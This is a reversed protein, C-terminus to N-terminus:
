PALCNVRIERDGVEKAASKTLGIIAHKSAVYAANKAFGGLGAVSSTNVISGRRNMNRLQARMCYMTGNLNVDLVRLWSKDDLDEIRDINFNDPIIGALNVAGDLAGFQQVTTEVWSDVQQSNAIDIGFAMCHGGSKTIREQVQEVAKANIDALSVKAGYSALLEATALGMGSGAGTIAIVKNRLDFM